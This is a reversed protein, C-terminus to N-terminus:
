KRLKRQKEQEIRKILPDEFKVSKVSPQAVQRKRKFLGM